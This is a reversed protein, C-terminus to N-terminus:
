AERGGKARLEHANTSETGTYSNLSAQLMDRRKTLTQIHSEVAQELSAAPAQHDTVYGHSAFEDGPAQIFGVLACSRRAKQLDAIVDNYVNITNRLEAPDVELKVGKGAGNGPAVPNREGMDLGMLGRLTTPGQQGPQTNTLQNLVDSYGSQQHGPAPPGPAPTPDTVHELPGALSDGGQAEGDQAM